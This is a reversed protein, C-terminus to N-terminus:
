DQNKTLPVMDTARKALGQISIASSCVEFSCQDSNYMDEQMNEQLM